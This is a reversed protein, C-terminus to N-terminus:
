SADVIGRGRLNEIRIIAPLALLVAELKKVRVGYDFLVLSVHRSGGVGVSAQDKINIECGGALRLVCGRFISRAPAARRQFFRFNKQHVVVFFYKLRQAFIEGFFPILDADTQAAFLSKFGILRM